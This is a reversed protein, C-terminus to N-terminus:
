RAAGALPGSNQLEELTIPDTGAPLNVRFAADDLNVNLDVQALALRLDFRRAELATLRVTRPLGREFDRYEARWPPRGSERHVIAVLHWPGTHPQRHLYLESAGDAVVRWDDGLQRGRELDPATPCALLAVRLDAADLPLGAV